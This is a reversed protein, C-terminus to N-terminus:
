LRTIKMFSLRGDVASGGVITGAGMRTMLRVTSNGTMASFIASALSGRSSAGNYVTGSAGLGNGLADVWGYACDGNCMAFAADLNYIKGPTLTFVGTAANYPINSGPATSVNNMVVNSGNAGLNFGGASDTIQIYEPVYYALKFTAGTTGLAFLTGAAVTGNPTVILGYYSIYQGPYYNEGVQYALIPISTAPAVNFSAATWYTANTLVQGINGAVKSKYMATSTADAAVVQGAAYTVGAAYAGKFNGGFQDPSWTATTSGQADWAFATNAPVIANATIQYGLYLATSGAAYLQTFDYDLIAAISATSSADSIGTKQPTTTIM